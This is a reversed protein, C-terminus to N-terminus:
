HRICSRKVFKTFVFEPYDKAEAVGWAAWNIEPFYADGEYEGCISSIYLEDAHSFVQKYISAGGIIFCDLGDKLVMDLNPAFTLGESSILDNRRTIVINTREPLGQPMNLSEFTKRGMVVVGGKTLSKFLKLDDSIHWPIAGDKGIVGDKTIAVIIKIM